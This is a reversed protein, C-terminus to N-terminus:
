ALELLKAELSEIASSNPRKCRRQRRLWLMLKASKSFKKAM